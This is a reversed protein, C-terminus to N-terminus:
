DQDGLALEASQAAEAAQIRAIDHAQLMAEEWAHHEAALFDDEYLPTMDDVMGRMLNEHQVNQNHDLVYSDEGREVRKDVRIGRHTTPRRNIGQDAYSEMSIREEFGADELHANQTEEWALRWQEMISPLGLTEREARQAKTEYGNWARNKNKAWNGDADIERVTLLIHAHPNTGGDSSEKDHICMDAIMGRSVFQDMVHERLLAINQELNLERPLAIIIGRALRSNRRNEVEEVENWLTERDLLREPVHEPAMIEVHQVDDRESYDFTYKLKHDHLPTGSRYSAAAVISAVTFSKSLREGSGYAAMAVASKRARAGRAISSVRYTPNPM